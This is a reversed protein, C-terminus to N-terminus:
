SSYVCFDTVARYGMREYIRYGMATSQLITRELGRRRRVDELACRMTAEGFGNRQHAPLTAVNYVGAVGSGVAVATTCVPEDRWYGVYGDLGDWVWENAFVENFWPLPVNFCVAGIDCFAARTAADCVRRVDIRPAPREPPLLRPALMGPLEIALHLGAKRFEHRSRRRLKTDLWGECVWFSWDMRRSEFYERTASLRLALDDDDEVPSSLFAANFMQFTVGLSIIEVGKWGALEARPQYRAFGRFCDRLNAEVPGFDTISAQVQM